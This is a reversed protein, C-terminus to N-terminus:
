RGDAGSDRQCEGVGLPASGESAIVGERGGDRSTRGVLCGYYQYM